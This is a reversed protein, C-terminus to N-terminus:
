LEKGSFRCTPHKEGPKLLAVPRGPAVEVFVGQCHAASRRPEAPTSAQQQQEEEGLAKREKIDGAMGALGGVASLGAGIATGIGPIFSLGQGVAGFIGGLKQGINSM